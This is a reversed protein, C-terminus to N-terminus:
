ARLGISAGNNANMISAGPAAAIVAYTTVVGGISTEGGAGVVTPANGVTSHVFSAHNRARIGVGTTTNNIGMITATANICAGVQVDVCPNAGTRDFIALTASLDCGASTAINLGAGQFCSAAGAWVVYPATITIDAFAAHGIVVGVSDRGIFMACTATNSCAFFGFSSGTGLIFNVADFRCKRISCGNNNSGRVNAYSGQSVSLSAITVDLLELIGTGLIDFQYGGIVIDLTEIAFTDNVAPTISAGNNPNTFQSIRAQNSGLDKLVTAIGGAGAGSTLRLRQGVRAAWVIPTTTDTLKADTAPAALATFATVVGNTSLTAAGTISINGFATFRLVLVQAPFTGALTIVHTLMSVRGEFRRALEPLTRLATLATAGDNGDDGNVSDVFWNAQLMFPQAGNPNQVVPQWVAGDWVLTAGVDPEGQANAVWESGDWFIIDGVSAGSPLGGGPEGEPICKSWSV